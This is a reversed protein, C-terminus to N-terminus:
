IKDAEIYKLAIECAEYVAFAHDREGGLFGGYLNCDIYYGRGAEGEKVAKIKAVRSEPGDGYFIIERM